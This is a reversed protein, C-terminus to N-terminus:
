RLEKLLSALSPIRAADLRAREASERLRKAQRKVESPAPGGVIARRAPSGLPDGAAALAEPLKPHIRAALVKPAEALSPTEALLRGVAGYAERFPVGRAVLAEAVDTAAANSARVAARTRDAAFRIGGLATPLVALSDAVSAVAALFPPKDEQLDRNYGSPLGKMTSFLQVLSAVPRAARGRMLEFVDPNRKQPMMSSGCAISGDLTVFGFEESAFDVVDQALRSLHLALKACAHTGDLLFDRDAVADLANPSPEDFGLLKAGLGRDMPLTTGACAGSYLPFSESAARAAAAIARADRALAAGHSAWWFGATGPIARQRHTYLPMTIGADESARRSIADLVAALTELLSRLAERALLRGDLAVQDNRSRATHLRRGIPGLAAEVAMHVDEEGGPLSSPDALIAALAKRLASADQKALLKAAELVRVHALSGAIDAVLLARDAAFSSTYSLIEPALAGSPGRAIVGRKM